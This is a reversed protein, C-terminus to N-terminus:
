FSVGTTLVFRDAERAGKSGNSTDTGGNSNVMYAETSAFEADYWEHGYEFAVFIGNDFDYQATFSARYYNEQDVYANYSTNADTDSLLTVKYGVPNVREMDFMAGLTLNKNVKYTGGFNFTNVTAEDIYAANWTHMYQTFLDIRDNVNLTAGLSMEMAHDTLHNNFYTNDAANYYGSMSGGSQFDYADAGDNYLHVFGAVLELREIPSVKVQTAFSNFGCDGNTKNEGASAAHTNSFTTFDITAIDRIKYNLNLGATNDIEGINHIGTGNLLLGNASTPSKGGKGHVVSDSDGISADPKGYAIEHKGVRIGLNGDLLKKWDYYAEEVLDGDTGTDDLDLKLVATTTDSTKIKFKMEAKNLGWGATTKDKTSQKADTAGHEFRYETILTGGVTMKYKKMTVLETPGEGGASEKLDRLDAEYKAEMNQLKSNMEQKMEEMARRMDSVEDAKAAGCVLLAAAAAGLVGRILKM